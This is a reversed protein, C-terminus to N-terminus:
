VKVLMQSLTNLFKYTQTDTHTQALNRHMHMNMNMHLLYANGDEYNTEKCLLIVTLNSKMVEKM